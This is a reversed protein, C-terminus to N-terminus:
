GIIGRLSLPWLLILEWLVLEACQSFRTIFQSWQPLVSEWMGARSCLHTICVKNFNVDSKQGHM